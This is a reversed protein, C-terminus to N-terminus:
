MYNPQFISIELFLCVFFLIMNAICAPQNMKSLDSIQEIIKLFILVEEAFPIFLHKLENNIHNINLNSSKIIFITTIVFTKLIQAHFRFVFRHASEM